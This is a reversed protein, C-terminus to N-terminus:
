IDLSYQRKLLKQLAAFLGQTTIDPAIEALDYKYKRIREAHAGNNFAIFPVNLVM